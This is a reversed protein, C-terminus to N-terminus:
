RGWFARLRENFAAGSRPIGHGYGGIVARQARLETVLVDCVADWATGHAGSFVLLPLGANRIAQFPVTAEWPPREVMTARVSAEEDPALKNAVSRSIGVAQLFRELFTRPAQDPTSFIAVLRTMLEEVAPDGRAVGFAPPEVVALSRVRDPVLAAAYLAVVGGYSHGVLHTGPEVLSAIEAAQSEFDIRDLPPNPPYGSRHPVVLRHDSALPRQAAWTGWGPAVSGHVLMVM